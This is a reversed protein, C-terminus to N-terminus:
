AGAKRIKDVLGTTSVGDRFSVIAIRGGYSEVVPKEIIDTTYDGGKVHIAPQLLRLFACPDDEGFVFACDVMKLSAIITARDRQSQLPRGSGKLKGVVEDSNVGVALLDGLRAADYLYQVHGAHLLDFCGNTTVLRRGEARLPDLFEAAAAPSDFAQPDALAAM